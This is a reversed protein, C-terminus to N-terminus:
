HPFGQTTAANVLTQWAAKATGDDLHLGLSCLYAHFAADNSDGYYQALTSCFAPTFDHLAFYNLFPMQTSGTQWAQFVNSVYTSQITESSSLATSSPYGVEQLVVPRNGALSRMTAFDTLPSQPGNPVFGAGLPYYTFIWVDSMTNLQTVNSQQAGSAGTFTSTVGVQLAPLQQHIYSLANEYFSQYATWEAPNAALYVDVENGISIYRVQSTLMPKLADILAHFRAEMAPNNWSTGQLDSPIERAVTNIIQLGLYITFGKSTSYTVSNQLTSLSFVGPSTELQNWAFTLVAGRAGANTVMTEANIADQQTPPPVPRANATIGLIRHDSSTSTSSSVGATCGDMMLFLPFVLLFACFQKVRETAERHSACLQKM